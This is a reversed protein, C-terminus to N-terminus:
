KKNKLKRKEKKILNDGWNSLCLSGLVFAFFGFCLLAAFAVSKIEEPSFVGAASSVFNPFTENSTVQIGENFHLGTNQTQAAVKPLLYGPIM